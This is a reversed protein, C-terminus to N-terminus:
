LWCWHFLDAWGLRRELGEKEERQSSQIGELYVFTSFSLLHLCLPSSLPACISLSNPSTALSFLISAPSAWLSPYLAVAVTNWARIVDTENQRGYLLGRFTFPSFICDFVFFLTASIISALLLLIFFLFLFNASSIHSPLSFPTCCPEPAWSSDWSMLSQYPQLSFYGRLRVRWRGGGRERERERTKRSWRRWWGRQNLRNRNSVTDARRM